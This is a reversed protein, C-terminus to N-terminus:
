ELGLTPIIKKIGVYYYLLKIDNIFEEEEFYFEIHLAKQYLSETSIISTNFSIDDIYQEDEFQFEAFVTDTNKYNSIVHETDFPIDNIYPEESFNFTSAMLNASFLLALTAIITTTIKTAKM